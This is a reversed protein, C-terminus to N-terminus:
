SRAKFDKYFDLEEELGRIVGNMSSRVQELEATHKAVLSEMEVRSELLAREKESIEGSMSLRTETVAKESLERARSEVQRLFEADRVQSAIHMYQTESLSITGGCNPCTVTMNDNM